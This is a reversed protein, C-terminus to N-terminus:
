RGDRSDGKERVKRILRRLKKNRFLRWGTRLLHIARIHGAATIEGELVAENFDPEVALESSAPLLLYLVGALKGTAAPDGTGFRLSGRIRRPRYHRLLGFLEGKLELLLEKAAYDELFQLLEEFRELLAAIRGPIAAAKGALAEAKGALASVSRVLGRLREKSDCLTKKITGCCARIKYWLIRIKEALSRKEPATDSHVSEQEEEQLITEARDNQAIEAGCQEQQGQQEQQDPDTRNDQAAEEVGELRLLQEPGPRDEPEASGQKEEQLRTEARGNQVIEAGCQEQQEPDTRDDQTIERERQADEQQERETRDSEVTEEQETKQQEPEPHGSEQPKRRRGKARRKRGSAGALLRKLSSLSIGFIRIEMQARRTAGDIGLRVSILRLLWSVQLGASLEQENKVAHGRYRVPVFVVALVVLLLLLLLAALLIGTLKLIGLIIHLM